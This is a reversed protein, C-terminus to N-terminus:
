GTPVLATTPMSKGPGYRTGAADNVVFATYVLVTPDCATGRGTATRSAARALDQEVDGGPLHPHVGGLQPAPVQQALSSSGYALGFPM